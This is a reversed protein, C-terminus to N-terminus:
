TRRQSASPARVVEVELGGGWDGGVEGGEGGLGFPIKGDSRGHRWRCAACLENAGHRPPEQGPATRRSPRAAEVGHRAEVLSSISSSM